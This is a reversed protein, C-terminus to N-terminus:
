FFIFPFLLHNLGAAGTGHIEEEWILVRSPFSDPRPGLHLTPVADRCPGRRAGPVGVGSQDPLQGWQCLMSSCLQSGGGDRGQAAAPSTSHPELLEAALQSRHQLGPTCPQHPAGAPLRPTHLGQPVRLHRSTPARSGAPPLSVPGHQMCSHPQETFLDKQLFTQKSILSSPVPLRAADCLKAKLLLM